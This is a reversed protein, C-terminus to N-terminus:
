HKHICCVESLDHPTNAMKIAYIGDRMLFCPVQEGDVTACWSMEVDDWEVFALVEGCVPCRNDCASM